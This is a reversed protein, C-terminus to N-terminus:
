RAAIVHSNGRNMDGRVSGGMADIMRKLLDRSQGTYNTITMDQTRESLCPIERFASRGCIGQLCPNSDCSFPLADDTGDILRPSRGFIDGVHDMPAELQGLVLVCVLWAFNAINKNHGYATWFEWGTRRPCIVYDAGELQDVQEFISQGGRGSTSPTEAVFVHAAGAQLMTQKLSKAAAASFELSSAMYIRLGALTSDGVTSPGVEELYKSQENPEHCAIKLYTTNATTTYSAASGGGLITHTATEIKTASAITKSRAPPVGNTTSDLISPKPFEYQGTPLRNM